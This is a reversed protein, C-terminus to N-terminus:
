LTRAPAESTVLARPLRMLRLIAGHDVAHELLAGVLGSRGAPGGAVQARGPNEKQAAEAARAAHADAGADGLADGEARLDGAGEALHSPAVPVSLAPPMNEVCFACSRLCASSAARSARRSLPGVEAVLGAVGEALARASM